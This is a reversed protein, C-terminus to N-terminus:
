RTIVCKRSGRSQQLNQSSLSTSLQPANFNGSIVSEVKGLVSIRGVLRAGQGILHMKNRCAEVKQVRIRM